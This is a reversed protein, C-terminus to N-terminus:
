EANKYYKNWMNKMAIAHQKPKIKVYALFQKESKHGTVSMITLTDLKGYHFTAFTRRCCHSTILDHKPYNGAIKRYVIEKSNSYGKIEVPMMKGGDTLENLNALKAVEKIYDERGNTL